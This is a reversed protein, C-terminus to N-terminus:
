HWRSRHRRHKQHEEILTARQEPTLVDAVDALVTTATHSGDELRAIADARLQELTARDVPDAALAAGLARHAEEHGERLLRLEEIGARAISSIEEVQADSPDAESLVWAVGRRLRDEDIQGDEGLLAHHGGFGRHCAGAVALSIAAVMLILGGRLTMRSLTSRTM